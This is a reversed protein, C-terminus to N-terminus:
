ENDKKSEEDNEDAPTELKKVIARVVRQSSVERVIIQLGHFIFSDGKKPVTGFSDLILGGVTLSESDLNKCNVDLLEMMDILAMDCSVLYEDSGIKTFLRQIEEDEDWIEGVIEEILDEMTVIGLTGGYEDTVIAIHLKKCKFDSLIKSLKQTNFIFYAPQILKKIDPTQNNALEELFDRTHLIGVIHDITDEYVPIRSYRNEFVLDKITEFDDDIDIATVDVRPTLIEIATKEDFDLVSQVMERETEELVGQEEITEVLSKLEDETVDPSDEKGGTAKLALGKIKIFVFIFPTLIIMLGKLFGAFKFVFSESYEKALCKPIIEGFTLVLLTTIGTSIAAGADGFLNLCLITAISSCGLNVINNCILIATLAKDFNEFIYLATQAKKNGDEAYTKMRITNTFSVATEISSFIASLIVCIVIAIAYLINPDM